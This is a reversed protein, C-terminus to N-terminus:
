FPIAQKAATAMEEAGFQAPKGDVPHGDELCRGDVYANHWTKGGSDSAKKTLNIRLGVMAQCAKKLEALFPRGNAKTWNDVDFGIGALEKRVERVAREDVGNKGQLFSLWEIKHGDREGGYVAGKRILTVTSTGEKVEASTVTLEYKGDPLNEIGSRAAGEFSDDLADFSM